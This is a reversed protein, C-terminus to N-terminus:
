RKGAFRDRQVSKGTIAELNKRIRESFRDYDDGDETALRAMESALRELDLLAARKAMKM